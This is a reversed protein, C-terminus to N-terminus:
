RWNSQLSVTTGSVWCSVIWLLEQELCCILSACKRVCDELPGPEAVQPELMGSGSDAANMRLLHLLVSSVSCCTRKTLLSAPCPGTKSKGKSHGARSGPLVMLDKFNGLLCLSYIKSYQQFNRSCCRLQSLLWCLPYFYPSPILLGSIDDCFTSVTQFSALFHFLLKTNIRLNRAWFVSILFM